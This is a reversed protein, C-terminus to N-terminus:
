ACNKPQITHSAPWGIQVSAAEHLECDLMQDRVRIVDICRAERPRRATRAGDDACAVNRHVEGNDFAANRQTGAATQKVAVPSADGVCDGTDFLAAVVIGFEVVAEIVKCAAQVLRERM